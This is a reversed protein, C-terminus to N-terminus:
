KERKTAATAMFKLLEIVEAEIDSNQ